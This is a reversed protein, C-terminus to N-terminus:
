PAVESLPQTAIFEALEANLQPFASDANGAKFPVLITAGPAPPVADQRNWLAIGLHSIQGDPQILYVYDNDAEARIPCQDLYDHAQQLPVFDLTCDAPVAGIVRVTTPRAPYIFVDGASVRQNQETDVEVGVPDLLHARRGSVPLAAVKDHLRRALNALVPQDDLLAKQELQLLDFLVGAKLRKQPQVLSQQLWAGGLWYGEANVQAIRLVDGLRTDPAIAIMGAKAADGRVEVSDAASACTSAFLAFPILLSRLKM